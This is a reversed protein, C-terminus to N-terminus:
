DGGSEGIIGYRVGCAMNIPRAGPLSAVASALLRNAGSKMKM